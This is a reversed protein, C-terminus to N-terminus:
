LHVPHNRFPPCVVRGWRNLQMTAQSAASAPHAHRAFARNLPTVTTITMARDQSTSSFRVPLMM